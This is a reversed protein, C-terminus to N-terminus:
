IILDPYPGIGCFSCERLMMSDFNSSYWPAFVGRRKVSSLTNAIFGGLLVREICNLLVTASLVSPREHVISERHKLFFQLHKPLVHVFLSIYSSTLSHWPVFVEFFNWFFLTCFTLRLHASFLRFIKVSPYSAEFSLTLCSKKVVLNLNPYFKVFIYRLFFCIPSKKTWNVFTPGSCVATNLDGSM